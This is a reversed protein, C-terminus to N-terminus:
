ENEPMLEVHHPEPSFWVLGNNWGRYNPGRMEVELSEGESRNALTEDIKDIVASVIWDIKNTYLWQGVSMRGKENLQYGM